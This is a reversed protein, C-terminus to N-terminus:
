DASLWGAARLCVRLKALQAEKEADSVDYGYTEPDHSPMNARPVYRLVGYIVELETISRDRYSDVWNYGNSVADNFTSQLVPETSGTTKAQDHWGYREGLMCM